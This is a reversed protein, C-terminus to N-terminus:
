PIQLTCFYLRGRHQGGQSSHRSAGSVSHPKRHETPIPPPFHPAFGPYFGPINHRGDAFSLSFFYLLNINPSFVTWNEVGSLTTQIPMLHGTYLCNITVTQSAHVVVSLSQILMSMFLCPPCSEM